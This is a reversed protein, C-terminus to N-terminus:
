TMTPLYYISTAKHRVFHSRLPGSFSIFKLKRPSNKRQNRLVLWKSFSITSLLNHIKCTGFERDNIVLHLRGWLNLGLALQLTGCIRGRFIQTHCWLRIILSVRRYASRKCSRGVVGRLRVASYTVTRNNITIYFEIKNGSCFLSM